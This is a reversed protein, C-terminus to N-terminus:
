DDEEKKGFCKIFIWIVFRIVECIILMVLTLINFPLCLVSIISVLIIRGTLNIFDSTEEWVCVQWQFLCRLFQEKETLCNDISYIQEFMAAFLPFLIGLFLVDVGGLSALIIKCIVNM